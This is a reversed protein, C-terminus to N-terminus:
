VGTEGARKFVLPNYWLTRGGTVRSLREPTRALVNGRLKIPAGCKSCSGGTLASAKLIGPVRAMVVTNCSPCRTELINYAESHVYVYSLRGGLSEYLRNVLNWGGPNEIFVHLPVDLAALAEVTDGLVGVEPKWLYAVHEVHVGAKAMVRVARLLRERAESFGTLISHDETVAFDLAELGALDAVGHIRAGVMLGAGNLAGRFEELSLSGLPEFGDLVVVSPKWMKVTHRLVRADLPVGPYVEPGRMWECVEFSAECELSKLPRVLVRLASGGPALHFLPIAEVTSYGLLVVNISGLVGGGLRKPLRFGM